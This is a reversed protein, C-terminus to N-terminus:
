FFDPPEIRRPAPQDLGTLWGNWRHDGEIQQSVQTRQSNGVVGTKDQCRQRFVFSLLQEHRFACQGFRFAQFDFAVHFLSEINQFHNGPASPQFVYRLDSVFVVFLEITGTIRLCDCGFM